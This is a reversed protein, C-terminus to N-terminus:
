EKINIVGELIEVNETDQEYIVNPEDGRLKIAQIPVEKVISSGRKTVAWHCGEKDVKRYLTHMKRDQITDRSTLIYVGKRKGKMKLKGKYVKSAISM